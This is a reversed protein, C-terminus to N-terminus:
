DKTAELVTKVKNFKKISESLIDFLIPQSLPLKFAIWAKGKESLVDGNYCLCGDELCIEETLSKRDDLTLSLKKVGSNEDNQCDNDAQERMLKLHEPTDDIVINLWEFQTSKDIEMKVKSSLFIKRLIKM